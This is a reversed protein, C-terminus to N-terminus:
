VGNIIIIYIKKKKKKRKRAYKYIPPLQRIGYFVRIRHIGIWGGMGFLAIDEYAHLSLCLVSSLDPLLLQPKPYLDPHFPPHITPPSSFLSTIAISAHFTITSPSLNPTKQSSLTGPPDSFLDPLPLQGKSQGLLPAKQISPDLLSYGRHTLHPSLTGTHIQLDAQNLPFSLAIRDEMTHVPPSCGPLSESWSTHSASFVEDSTQDPSPVPIPLSQPVDCNTNTLCDDPLKCCDSDAGILEICTSVTVDEDSTDDKIHDSDDYSHPAAAPNVQFGSPISPAQLIQHVQEQSPQVQPQPGCPVFNQPNPVPQAPFTGQSRTAMSLQNIEANQQALHQLSTMNEKHRKSMEMMMRMLKDLPKSAHKTKQVCPGSPLNAM